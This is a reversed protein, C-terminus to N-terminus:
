ARPNCGLDFRHRPWSVPIFRCHNNLATIQYLRLSPLSFTGKVSVCALGGNREGILRPWPIDRSIQNNGVATFLLAAGVITGQITALIIDAIDDSDRLDAYKEVWGPYTNFNRQEFNMLSDFKEPRCASFEIGMNTLSAM